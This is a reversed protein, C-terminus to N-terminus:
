DYQQEKKRFNYEVPAEKVALPRAEGLKLCLDRLDSAAKLRRTIAESSMDSKMLRYFDAAAFNEWSNERVNKNTNIRTIRPCNKM